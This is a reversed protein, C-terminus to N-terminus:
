FKSDSVVPLHTSQSRVKIGLGGVRAVIMFLASKSRISGSRNNDFIYLFNKLSFEKRTLDLARLHRNIM